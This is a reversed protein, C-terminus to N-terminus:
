LFYKSVVIVLVIGLLLLYTYPSACNFTWGWGISFEGKPVILRTDKRNFYFPGRWNGPDKIMRDYFDQEPKPIM